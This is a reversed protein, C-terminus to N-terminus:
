ICLSIPSCPERDVVVMVQSRQIRKDTEAHIYAEYELGYEGVIIYIEHRNQSIM